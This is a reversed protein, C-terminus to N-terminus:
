YWVNFKIRCYTIDTIRTCWIKPLCIIIFHILINQIQSLLLLRYIWGEFKLCDFSVGRNIQIIFYLVINHLIFYFLYYTNSVTNCQQQAIIIHRNEKLIFCMHSKWVTTPGRSLNFHYSLPNVCSIWWRRENSCFFFAFAFPFVFM